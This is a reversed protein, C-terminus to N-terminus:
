NVWPLRDGSPDVIVDRSDPKREAHLWGFNNDHMGFNRVDAVQGFDVNQHNGIFESAAISLLKTAGDGTLESASLAAGKARQENGAHKRM